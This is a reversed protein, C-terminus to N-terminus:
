DDLTIIPQYLSLNNGSEPMSITVGEKALAWASLTAAAFSLHNADPVNVCTGFCFDFM